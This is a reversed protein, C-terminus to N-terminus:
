SPAPTAPTSTPIVFGFFHIASGHDEIPPTASSIPKYTAPDRHIFDFIGHGGPNMGTVFNSWAVPSQPPASTGLSQFTGEDRLQAFNPMEGEDIMRELIVPDMGDIGIVVVSPSKANATVVFLSIALSFAALTRM